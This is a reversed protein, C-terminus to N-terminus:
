VLHWDHFTQYLYTFYRCAADTSKYVDCREDIYSDVKLDFMKSSSLLFQWIGVAGSSSKALPDLGSEVVALYKLEFPLNYKDLLSEFIPFYLRSLGLIKCVDTRRDKTYKEIYKRVLPNYELNLPTKKELNAFRYEYFLDPYVDVSDKTHGQGYCEPLILWAFTLWLYFKVPISM